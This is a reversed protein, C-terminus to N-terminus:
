AFLIMFDAKLTFNIIKKRYYEIDDELAKKEAEKQLEDKSKKKIPKKEKKEEFKEDANKVTKEMYKAYQRTNEWDEM